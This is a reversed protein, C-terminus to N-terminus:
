TFSRLMQAVTKITAASSFTANQIEEVYLCRGLKETSTEWGKFSSCCVPTTRYVDTALLATCSLLSM